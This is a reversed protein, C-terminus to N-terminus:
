RDGEKKNSPKAKPTAWNDPCLDLQAAQEDSVDVSDGREVQMEIGDLVTLIEAVPGVYIRRAM